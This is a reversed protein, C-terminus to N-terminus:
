YSKKFRWLFRIANSISIKREEKYRLFTGIFLLPYFIKKFDYKKILNESVKILFPYKILFYSIRQINEIKEKEKLNLISKTLFSQPLHEFSFEKNLYGKEICFTALQTDPFPMFITSFVFDAEINVNLKITSFADDVTEDPLCFMNSTQIRIGNKHLIFACKIIEEDSINKKLIDERIRENGSEIGFSVTHCGSWKLLEAIEEDMHDARTVCMFPINVKEKYMPAFSKLWKKNMTFLDDAFFISKITSINRLRLIEEILHEPTKMRIYKGKTKFTNQLQENFCFSCKYPCGRSAIFQKLEDDKLLSYRNYYIYRDEFSNSINELLPERENIVAEGDKKYGIGKIYECNSENKILDCFALMTKEGEGTCVYDVEPIKLIAEPYLIAHIGGVIIPINPFTNKIQQSTKRLWSHEMTLASIGVVDPDIRRLESIFDKESNTILVDTEIDNEKLFGSLSMIGFYPFAQKQIFCIHMKKDVFRSM